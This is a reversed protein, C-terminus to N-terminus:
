NIFLTASPSLPNFLAVNCLFICLYRMASLWGTPVVL